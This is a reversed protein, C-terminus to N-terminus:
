LPAAFLQLPTGGSRDSLNWVCNNWSLNGVDEYLQGVYQLRCFTSSVEPPHPEAKLTATLEGSNLFLLHTEARHM